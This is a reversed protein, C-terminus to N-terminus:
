APAPVPLARLLAQLRVATWLKVGLVSVAVALALGYKGAAIALVVGATNAAKGLLSWNLLWVLHDVRHFDNPGLLPWYLFSLSLMPDLFMFTLLFVAAVPEVSPFQAVLGVCLVSTCARDSVIDLVAGVRTEQGLRRACWGDAIDGVWYVAYAVGLLLLSHAAVGAGGIVVAAVTRVVTIINPLTDFRVGATEDLPQLLRISPM